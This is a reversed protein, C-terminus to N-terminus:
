FRDPYFLRAAEEVAEGIRPGPRAFCDDDVAYARNEQVAPISKWGPREAMTQLMLGATGHFNPFLIVGPQREVIMETSVKPYDEAVDGFINVGGARTIIEDITTGAGASMVPDSYVEYYVRAKETEKLGGLQAQVQDVREQISAVLTEGSAIMGSAEALLMTASIIEELTGPILVLTTLGLEGLQSLLEGHIEGALVLDPELELIKELSPTSFGGIKEKEEAEPPYNCYDTVAIVRDGLGLAFAIETNSPSLSIMRQPSDALAVERGAQDTVVAFHGGGSEQAAKKCGAPLLSGALCLILGFLLPTMLSRWGRQM